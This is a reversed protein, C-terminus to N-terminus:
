ICRTMSHLIMRELHSMICEICCAHYHTRIYFQQCAHQHLKSRRLAACRSHMRIRKCTCTAQMSWWGNLYLSIRTFATWAFTSHHMLIHEYHASNTICYLVAHHVRLICETNLASFHLHYQLRTWSATFHTLFTNKHPEFIIWFYAHLHVIRICHIATYHLSFANCIIYKICEWICHLALLSVVRM